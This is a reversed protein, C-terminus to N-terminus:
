LWNFHIVHDQPLNAKRTDRFFHLRLAEDHTKYRVVSEKTAGILLLHPVCNPVHQLM